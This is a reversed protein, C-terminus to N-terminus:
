SEINLDAPEADSAVGLVLIGAAEGADLKTIDNGSHSTKKLVLSIITLPGGAGTWRAFIAM